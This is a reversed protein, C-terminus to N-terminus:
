FQTREMAIIQATQVNLAKVTLRQNGGSSSISGTIVINAGLMKGITVASNDDVDGSMQFNQESRIKDLTNRDVIKFERSNVLQYEIEDIASTALERVHSSISLVAIISNKPLDYILTECIKEVAEEIGGNSSSNSPTNAALSVPSKTRLSIGHFAGIRVEIEIQQSNLSVTFNQKATPLDRVYGNLSTFTLTHNGNKVILRYNSNDGLTIIKQDNLEIDVKDLSLSFATKILILSENRGPTQAFVVGAIHAIFIFLYFRNKAMMKEKQSYIAKIVTGKLRYDWLIVLGYPCTCVCLWYGGM